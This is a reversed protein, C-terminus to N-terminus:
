ADGHGVEGTEPPAGVLEILVGQTSRPHFFITLTGGLGVEPAPTLPEMGAAVLRGIADALDGVRYALHHIGPGRKELFRTVPTEAREPVLLEVRTGALDLLIARLGPRPLQQDHVVTMGLLDRHVALSAEPDTTVIGIHDLTFGDMPMAVPGGTTTM